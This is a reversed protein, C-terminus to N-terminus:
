FGNSFIVGFEKFPSTTKSSDSCSFWSMFAIECSKSCLRGKNAFALKESLSAKQIKQQHMNFKGAMM